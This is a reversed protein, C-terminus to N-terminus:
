IKQISKVFNNIDKNQQSITYKIDSSDTNEIAAACATSADVIILSDNSEFALKGVHCGSVSSGAVDVDSGLDYVVFDKNTTIAPPTYDVKNTSKNIWQKKASDYKYINEELETEYLETKATTVVGEVNWELPYSFKVGLDTLSCTLLDNQATPKLCVTKTNDKAATSSDQSTSPTSPTLSPSANQSQQTNSKKILDFPLKYDTKIIEADIALAFGAITLFFVTLLILLGQWFKIKGHHKRPPGIPLTYKGEEVLKNVREQKELAEVEAQKANGADGLVTNVANEKGTSDEPKQEAEVPKEEAQTRDPKPGNPKEKEVIETENKSKDETPKETDEKKEQKVQEVLEESPEIVKESSPSLKSENVELAPTDSKETLPDAVEKEEPTPKDPNVTGDSVPVKHGIIVPKATPDAKVKGPNTVDFVKKEDAM